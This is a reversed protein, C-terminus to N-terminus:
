SLWPGARSVLCGRSGKVCVTIAPATIQYSHSNGASNSHLWVRESTAAHMAPFSIQSTNPSQANVPVRGARNAKAKQQATLVIAMAEPNASSRKSNLIPNIKEATSHTDFAAANRRRAEDLRRRFTSQPLYEQWRARPSRTPRGRFDTLTM